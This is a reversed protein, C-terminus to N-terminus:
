ESLNGLVFAEGGSHLKLQGDNSQTLVPESLTEAWQYYVNRHVKAYLDRGVHVYPIKNRVELPHAASIPIQDGLNTTVQIVPGDTEDLCQWQTILFPVDAVTIKAKEAPTVLYYAGDEFVLVSAFLRVLAPRKIVSNQYLWEGKENIHIPVDGCHEPNWLETPAHKVHELSTLLRELNM